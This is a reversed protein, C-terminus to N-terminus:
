LVSEYTYDVQYKDTNYFVANAKQREVISCFWFTDAGM